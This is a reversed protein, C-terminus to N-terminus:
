DTNNSQLPLKRILSLLADAEPRVRYHDSVHAYVIAANEDSIIITPMVLDQDYGFLELGFPLSGPAAIGLTQAARNNDDCLFTMPVQFRQALDRTHKQNQPSVLVLEVGLAQFARWQAAMESAQGVCLPCWNGRYFLWLYKKGVFEHSHRLSGDEQKLAFEPLAQGRKLHPLSPLASQSYWRLYVVWAIFSIAALWFQLGPSQQSGQNQMMTVIVGTAALLSIPLMHVSTRAPKRIFLWAFFGLIIGSSLASGSWAILQPTYTNQNLLPLGLQYLSWVLAVGLYTLFFSIFFRKLQHM